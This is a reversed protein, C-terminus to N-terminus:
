SFGTTNNSGFFMLHVSTQTIAYGLQQRSFERSWKIEVLATDDLHNILIDFNNSSNRHLMERFASARLVPHESQRLQVLENDTAMHRLSSDYYMVIGKSVIKVLYPQLSNRFDKIAYNYKNDTKCSWFLLTISVFLLLRPKFM